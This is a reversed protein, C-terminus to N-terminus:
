QWSCLSTTIAFELEQLIQKKEADDTHATAIRLGEMVWKCYAAGEATANELLAPSIYTQAPTLKPYDPQWVTEMVTYLFKGDRLVKEKAIRWGTDSLYKRLLPTKSQCQLILRYQGNRLWPAASLISVMTDGGMGACVLTDFERPISRVGDSLYFSIKDRVGFKESNRVASQLPGENIDSAIVASAIGEKLLYIGLYGHDCGIDAVRDGPAVFDCCALLRSSLPIKM